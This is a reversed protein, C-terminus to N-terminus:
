KNLTFPHLKDILFPDTQCLSEASTRDPSVLDLRKPEHTTSREGKKPEEFRLNESVEDTDELRLKDTTNRGQTTESMANKFRHIDLGCKDGDDARTTRPIDATKLKFHFFSPYDNENPVKKLDM